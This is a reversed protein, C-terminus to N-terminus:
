DGDERMRRLQEPDPNGGSVVAAVRLPNEATRGALLRAPLLGERVVAVAAAGAPEVVWGGRRVLDRQSAFIAADELTLVREVIGASLETNLRGASLPCLGQVATTIPDISGNTM